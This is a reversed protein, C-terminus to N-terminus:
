IRHDKIEKDNTKKSNSAIDIGSLGTNLDTVGIAENMEAQQNKYLEVLASRIAGVIVNKFEEPYERKDIEKVNNLVEEIIDDNNSAISRDIDAIAEYLTKMRLFSDSIAM